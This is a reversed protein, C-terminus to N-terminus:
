LRSLVQAEVAPPLTWLRLQGPCPVPRIARVNQLVFGFPGVFWRNRSRTTVSTLEAVGIVAGYELDDVDFPTKTVKSVWDIDEQYLSKGAHIAVRGRHRTDWTRNEFRKEGTVVFHAYPQLITLAKM